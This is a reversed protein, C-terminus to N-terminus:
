RRARWSPPTPTPPPRNGPRVSGGAAPATGTWGFAGLGYRTTRLTTIATLLETFHVAKIPTTDTVLPDDTFVSTGVVVNYPRGPAASPVRRVNSAADSAELYYQVGAKTVAGAPITASYTSGAATMAVSTFTSTGTTRYFLTAEQVGINDTIATTIPLATSVVASTVPSHAVAPPTTDQFTATVTRAQTMTVTCVGTGTCNGSWGTFTWGATPTPTLTVSSGYTYRASCTSGCDIGTPSSTVTGTGAGEKTVTLAFTQLTFTAMVNHAQTMTVICAGTGTCDGGWGTFRSGTTPTATLAVAIGEAFSAACVSGCDIGLPNSMVTGSGTGARTVTLVLLPTVGIPTAMDTQLESVV